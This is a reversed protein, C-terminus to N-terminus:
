REVESDSVLSCLGPAEGKERPGLSQAFVNSVFFM